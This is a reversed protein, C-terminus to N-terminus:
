GNPRYLTLEETVHGLEQVNYGWLNEMQLRFRRTDMQELLQRILPHRMGPSPIILDFRHEELPIFDLRFLRACASTTLGADAFGMQILRAVSLHSEAEPMLWNVATEGAPIKDLAATFMNHVVSGKERKVWRLDPRPLDDLSTVQKPNGRAAAIGIEWRAFHVSAYGTAPTGGPRIREAWAAHQGAHIGAIHAERRFLSELATESGKTFHILRLSTNEAAWRNLLTLAPDCGVMVITEKDTDDQEIWELHGTTDAVRADAPYFGDEGSLPFAVLREDIRALKVRDGSEFTSAPVVAHRDPQDLESFLTEVNTDLLQALKIAVPLSPLSKGSEIASIFQRSVGLAEALSEQSMSVLTRKYAIRQGIKAFVENPTNGAKRDRRSTKM